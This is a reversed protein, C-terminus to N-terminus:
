LWDIKDGEALMASAKSWSKGVQIAMIPLLLIVLLFSLPFLFKNKKFRYPILSPVVGSFISLWTTSLPYYKRYLYVVSPIPRPALWKKPRYADWSGMERLGGVAVKLHLRQAKPHSISRYGNLYSRLGFEGDGMRMKDFQRDFLGIAEFVSRKVLANGSDFQDAWRFYTYNEPIRDGVKSISVGASIDARFFDLGKVHEEIWNKEVRSDDDFFLLYDGTSAKAAANRALWQGKGEQYIVTLPLDAFQTYFAKDPVDNQDIIIIEHAPLTQHRLDDIADKLYPYRLLTPLIVSVKPRSAVLSSIFTEYEPYTAFPKHIFSKAVGRSRLLGAIERIPNHLSLIRIVFVYGLWFPKYYKRLYRYEDRVSPKGVQQMDEATSELLIGRNWAQFGLDLDRAAQTEYGEDPSLLAKLGDPIVTAGERYCASSCPGTVKPTLLFYWGPRIYRTFSFSGPM